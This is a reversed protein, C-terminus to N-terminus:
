PTHCLNLTPIHVVLPFQKTTITIPFTYKISITQSIHHLNIHIHTFSPIHRKRSNQKTTIHIPTHIQQPVSLLSINIPIHLQIHTHISMPSLITSDYLPRPQESKHQNYSSPIPTGSLTFHPTSTINLPSHIYQCPHRNTNTICTPTPPSHIFACLM